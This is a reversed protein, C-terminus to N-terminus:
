ASAPAPTESNDGGVSSDGTPKAATVNMLSLEKGFGVVLNPDYPGVGLAFAGLVVNKYVNSVHGLWDKGDFAEPMHKDLGTWKAVTVKVLTPVAKLVACAAHFLSDVFAFLAVAVSATLRAVFKQQFSVKNSADDVNTANMKELQGHLSRAAYPLLVATNSTPLLAMTM